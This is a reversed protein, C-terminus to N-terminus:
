TLSIQCTSEGLLTSEFAQSIYLAKAHAISQLNTSDAKGWSDAYVKVAALVDEEAEPHAKLTAETDVVEWNQGDAANVEKTEAKWDFGLEALEANVAEIKYTADDYARGDNALVMSQKLRYLEESDEIYKTSDAARMKQVLNVLAGYSKVFSPSSGKAFEKLIKNWDLKDSYRAAPDTSPAMITRLETATDIVDPDLNKGVSSSGTWRKWKAKKSPTQQIYKLFEDFYCSKDSVTGVCGKAITNAGPSSKIDLRYAYWLFMLQYPGSWVNALVETALLCLVLCAYVIKM